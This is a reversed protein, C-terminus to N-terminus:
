PGDTATMTDACTM